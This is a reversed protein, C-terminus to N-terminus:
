RSRCPQRTDAAAPLAEGAKLLDGLDSVPYTALVSCLRNGGGYLPDLPLTVQGLASEATIRNKDLRLQQWPSWLHLTALPEGGGTDWLELNQGPGREATGRLLVLRRGDASFPGHAWAESALQRSRGTGPWWLFVGEATTVAAIRADPALVVSATFWGTTDLRSLHATPGQQRGDRGWLAAEGNRRVIMIREDRLGAAAVCARPNTGTHDPPCDPRVLHHRGGDTGSVRALGTSQVLLFDKAGLPSVGEIGDALDSRGKRYEELGPLTRLQWWDSGWIMVHRGDAAVVAGRVSVDPELRKEVPRRGARSVLSYTFGPEDPPSHMVIDVLRAGLPGFAVRETDDGMDALPHATRETSFVLVNREEVAYVLPARQRTRPVVTLGDMRVRFPVVTGYRSGTESDAVVLRMADRNGAAGDDGGPARDAMLVFRGSTEVPHDMHDFDARSPHDVGDRTRVIWSRGSGPQRVAVRGGPGLLAGALLPGPAPAAGGSLAGDVLRYVTKEENGTGVDKTRVASVRDRAGGAPLAVGTVCEGPVFLGRPFARRREKAVDRIYWHRDMDEEDCVQSESDGHLLLDGRQSFDLYSSSWDQAAPDWEWWAVAKARGTRWVRVAGDRGAAAIKTGDDSVAVTDAEGPVDEPTRQRSVEGDDGLRFVLVRPKGDNGRRLVALVRGDASAATTQVSGEPLVRHIRLAKSLPLSTRLVARRAEPVDSTRRAALALLAADVPDDAARSEAYSALRRAAEQRDSRKGGNVLHVVVVGATLALVALCAVLAVAGRGRWLARRRHQRSLEIFEREALSIEDPRETERGRAATVESGRLLLDPHREGEEWERLRGRLREHWALFDRSEDLWGRLTPWQRVLAEHALAVTERGASDRAIVLLRTAALAQAAARLEDPLQDFARAVRAYEKGKVPRALREFLRRAVAEDVGGPGKCVQTLQQDAYRALAGEVGGIERYGAHTLRGHAQREWLEALAFEVLPLAGPEGGADTVIREALGPEFEVGPVAAVPLRVVEDLQAPTMPAIMQVTGSLAEARGGMVLEELSASRLTALVRFRRGEPHCARTMPLLVDLLARADAPRAGVTEEFQDLLVVHGATGAHELVRAGLLVATRGRDGGTLERALDRAAPFQGALAAALTRIPDTDPQGAFDTVTHGASRLLPLVGARVLSSKGVGSAGAVPVFPHTRVADAIRASDARRAFFVHADQERFPELGRFPSPRLDPDLGLLLAAPILYATAAPAGLEMAVTMGVVGGQVTDWVPSGSFGRAISPSGPAAEMSTWGKGVPARLRGRVWVGHDDTRHPFGLVRFPHGWMGTGGAFRVPATGPVTEALTLLAIDGGGDATVPRWHTVTATRRASPPHLLPFDVSVPATPPTTASEDGGLASAVVHACTCLTREAVLFGTGTVRGDESWFRAIGRPLEDDPAAKAM